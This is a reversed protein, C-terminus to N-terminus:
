CTWIWTCGQRLCVDLHLYTIKVIKIVLSPISTWNKHTGAWMWPFSVTSVRALFPNFSFWTYTAIGTLLASVLAKLHFVIGSVKHSVSVLPHHKCWSWCFTPSSLHSLFLLLSCHRHHRYDFPHLSHIM